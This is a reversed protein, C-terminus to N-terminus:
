CTSWLRIRFFLVYAHSDCCASWERLSFLIFYEYFRLMNVVRPGLAISFMHLIDVHHGSELGFYFSCNLQIENHQGCELCFFCYLTNMLIEVHLGSELGRCCCVHSSHWCTSWDRTLFLLFYENFRLM